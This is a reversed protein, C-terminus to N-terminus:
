FLLNKLVNFYTSKVRLFALTKTVQRGAVDVYFTDCADCKTVRHIVSELAVRPAGQSVNRRAHYLMNKCLVYPVNNSGTRTEKHDYKVVM